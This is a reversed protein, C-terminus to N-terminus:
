NGVWYQIDPHQSRMDASIEYLFGEL